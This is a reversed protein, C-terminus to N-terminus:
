DNKGKGKVAEIILDTYFELTDRDGQTGAFIRKSGYAAVQEVLGYVRKRTKKKGM